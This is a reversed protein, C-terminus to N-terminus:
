SRLTHSPLQSFKDRYTAAFRGLQLFGQRAAVRTLSM